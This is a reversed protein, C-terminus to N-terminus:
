MTKAEPSRSKRERECVPWRWFPGRERPRDAELPLDAELDEERPLYSDPESELPELLPVPTHTHTHGHAHTCTRVVRTKKPHLPSPLPPLIPIRYFTRLTCHQALRSCTATATRPLCVFPTAPRGGNTKLKSRGKRPITPKTAPLTPRSKSALHRHIGRSEVTCHAIRQPELASLGTNAMHSTDPWAKILFLLVARGPPQLNSSFIPLPPRGGFEWRISAQRAKEWGQM